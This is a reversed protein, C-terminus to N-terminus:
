SRHYSEARSNRLGELRPQIARCRSGARVPERQIASTRPARNASQINIPEAHAGNVDGATRCVIDNRAIIQARIGRPQDGFAVTRPSDIQNICARVNADTSGGGRVAIDNRPVPAANGQVAGRDGVREDFAIIDPDGAVARGGEAIGDPRSNIQQVVRRSVRDASCSGRRPVDDGAIEAVANVDAASVVVLDLAVIEARVRRPRGRHAIGAVANFDSPSRM